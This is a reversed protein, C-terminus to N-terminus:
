NLNYTIISFNQWQLGKPAKCIFRNLWFNQLLMMFVPSVKSQVKRSNHIELNYIVNAAKTYWQNIENPLYKTLYKKPSEDSSMKLGKIAKFEADFELVHSKILYLRILNTQLQIWALCVSIKKFFIFSIQSAAYNNIIENFRIETM